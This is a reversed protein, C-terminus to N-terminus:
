INQNGLFVCVRILMNLYLFNVSFTLFAHIVYSYADRIYIEYLHVDAKEISRYKTQFMKPVNNQERM